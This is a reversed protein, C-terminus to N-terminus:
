HILIVLWKGLVEVKGGAKEIKEIASSSFKNAKITIKKSLEGNGLIKIGDKFNKILGKNRLIEPDVVDGDNFINLSGVNVIAFEKRFINHFGFKPIRRKLPMQGGEFGAPVGGGSRANQGKHGKGSTGGFGSGSGRGIRKRNNKSGYKPTLNYLEM